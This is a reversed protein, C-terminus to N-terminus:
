EGRAVLSGEVGSLALGGEPPLSKRRHFDTAQEFAYAARLLTEESLPKGVFQLGIPLGNEFGCPLSIAPLGALNAPITCVDSLYMAIPDATREGIRFAVSPSTPGVLLDFRAFAQDFDRRILTRTQSAKLYYADYYGASLAYTGLMIRRKVEPGFGESRTKRYLNVIDVEAAATRHGYQVGDYRALNSSAEAPAILYYVPISFRLHPLSVEEVTAGLEVLTAVAKKVASAVEPAIKVGEYEFFEKVLGLRMGQVEPRLAAEYDPAAAELSTSDRPDHGAIVNLLLACDRVDRTIPGIQDLSSAFAILGYRSVRGYTPKLGVVGCFSAPQRISGGTDTGLSLIASNAATAAASGGSSGGPVRELDWPNRTPGFASNETSSGMAFEDMNAKGLFVAGEQRLRAVVTADFPPVFNELIRSACTTRLGKTTMVDKLALPIGTLPSGEGRALLEEAARAQALAVEPMLRLYAHLAPETQEARRLAAETLEVPSLQRARLLDALEHATLDIPTM